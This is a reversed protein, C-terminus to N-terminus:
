NTRSSANLMTISLPLGVAVFRGDVQGKVQGTGNNSMELYLKDQHMGMKTLMCLTIIIRNAKLTVVRCLQQNM